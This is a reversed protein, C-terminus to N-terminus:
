GVSSGLRGQKGNKFSFSTERSVNERSQSISRHKGEVDTSNSKENVEGLMETLYVDEDRMRDRIPFQPESLDCM